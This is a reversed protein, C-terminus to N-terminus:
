DVEKSAQIMTDALLQYCSLWADEMEKDWSSRLAQQL